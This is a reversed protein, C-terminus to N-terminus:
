KVWGDSDSIFHDNAASQEALSGCSSPRSWFVATLDARAYFHLKQGDSNPHPMLVCVSQIRIHTCGQTCCAHLMAGFLPQLLPTQTSDLGLSGCEAATAEDACAECHIKAVKQGRDRGRGALAATRTGRTAVM